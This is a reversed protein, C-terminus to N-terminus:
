QDRDRSRFAILAHGEIVERVLGDEASPEILARVEHALDDERSGPRGDWSAGFSLARDVIHQIPTRRAEFVSIREIHDFGRAYLVAEHPSLGRTRTQAPDQRSYSDLLARFAPYWANDPLEPYREGFLAIAGGRAILGNLSLVTAERDMWHFSRGMTVLQLPGLDSPLAFSSGRVFRVDVGARAANERAVALMEESPDIAVVQGALTAYDIALFGPGTGLDLVTDRTTLQVLDAVRRTLLKPYRPRGTTYYRAPNKFREPFLVNSLSM